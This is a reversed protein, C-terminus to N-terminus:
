SKPKLLLYYLQGDSNVRGAREGAITGTGLFIDARGPGQIAGGTDQNLAYRSVSRFQYEGASDAADHPYPLELHMLVLAGPPMLTKDTAISREPLVPVGISGTAPTGTTEKFFIFRDNQPLYRDLDQPHERFYAMVKPLTLEEASFHGDEVLARGISRYPYDTRGDYGVGMVSGDTLHLRASGQIQILYAELRDRLWVLELGRLPGQSGQLGDSGELALRSPHPTPWTDLDPPRRYLPYPYAASPQRSAAYTPEFYATFHVRGQGDTGTSQYFDFEAQVQRQLAQPSPATLLLHRFRQVSRFVRDHNIGLPALQPALTKYDEIAKPSRLYTLSHNVSQMLVSRDRDFGNEGWLQEDVGLPSLSPDSPISLQLPPVQGLATAIGLCPIWLLTAITAGLAPNLAPKRNLPLM